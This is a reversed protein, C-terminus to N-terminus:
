LDSNETCFEFAVVRPSSLCYVAPIGACGKANKHNHLSLMGEGQVYLYGVQIITRVCENCLQWTLGRAVGQWFNLMEISIAHCQTAVIFIFMFEKIYICPDISIGIHLYM